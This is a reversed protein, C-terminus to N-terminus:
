SNKNREEGEPPVYFTIRLKIVLMMKRATIRKLLRMWYTKVIRCFGMRHWTKIM